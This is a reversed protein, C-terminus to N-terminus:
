NVMFNVFYTFPGKVIYVIYNVIYVIYNVIYVFSLLNQSM